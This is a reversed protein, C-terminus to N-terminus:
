LLLLKDIYQNLSCVITTFNYNIFCFSIIFTINLITTLEPFSSLTAHNSYACPCSLLLTYIYSNMLPEM